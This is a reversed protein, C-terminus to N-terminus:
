GENTRRQRNLLELVERDRFRKLYVAVGEAIVVTVGKGVYFRNCIGCLLGRIHQRKQEPPLKKFGRVHFHDVHLARNMPLRGCVWCGGHGFALLIEYEALTIGYHAYYYANRTERKDSPNRM